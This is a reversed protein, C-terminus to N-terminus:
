RRESIRSSGEKKQRKVELNRVWQGQFSFDGGKLIQAGGRLFGEGATALFDVGICDENQFTGRAEQGQSYQYYLHYCCFFYGRHYYYHYCYFHHNQQHYSFYLSYCQHYNFHSQQPLFLIVQKLLQLVIEFEILIIIDTTTTTITTDVTITSPM